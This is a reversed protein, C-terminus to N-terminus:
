PSSTPPRWRQPTFPAHHSRGLREDDIRSKDLGLLVPGLVGVARQPALGRAAGGGLAVGVSPKGSAFTVSPEYHAPLHATM